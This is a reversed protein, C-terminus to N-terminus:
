KIAYNMRKFYTHNNDRMLVDTCFPYPIQLHNTTHKYPIGPCYDLVHGWFDNDEISELCMRCVGSEFDFPLSYKLKMRMHSLVRREAFCRATYKRPQNNNVSLRQCFYELSRLGNAEERLETIMIDKIRETVKVKVVKNKLKRASFNLFHGLGFRTLM